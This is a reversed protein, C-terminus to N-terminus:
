RRDILREVLPSHQRTDAHLCALADVVQSPTFPGALVVIRSQRTLKPVNDSPLGVVLLSHHERSCLLRAANLLEGEALDLSALDVM